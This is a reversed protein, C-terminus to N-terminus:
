EGVGFLESQCTSCMGSILLERTEASLNPAASQIMMGTSLKLLIEGVNDEKFIPNETDKGCMPCTIIEETVFRAM